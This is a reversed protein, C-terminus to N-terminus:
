LPISPWTQNMPEYTEGGGVYWEPISSSTWSQCTLSAEPLRHGLIHFHGFHSHMDTESDLGPGVSGTKTPRSRSSLSTYVVQLSRMAWNTVFDHVGGVKVVPFLHHFFNEVARVCDREPLTGYTSGLDPGLRAGIGVSGHPAHFASLHCVRCAALAERVPDHLRSDSM